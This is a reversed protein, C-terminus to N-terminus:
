WHGRGLGQCLRRTQTVSSSMSTQTERLHSSGPNWFLCSFRAMKRLESGSRLVCISCSDFVFWVPISTPYFGKSVANCGNRNSQAGHWWLTSASGHRGCSGSVGAGQSNCYFPSIWLFGVICRRFCRWYSNWVLLSGTPSQLPRQWM